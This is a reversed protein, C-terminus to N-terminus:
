GKGGPVKGGPWRLEEYAVLADAISACSPKRPRAKRAAKLITRGDLAARASLYQTRPVSM